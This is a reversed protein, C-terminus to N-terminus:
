HLYPCQIHSCLPLPHEPQGRHLLKPKLGDYFIRGGSIPFRRYPDNAIDQGELEEFKQFLIIVVYSPDSPPTAMSEVALIHKVEGAEWKHPVNGVIINSNRPSVQSTSFTMGFRELSRCCRINSPNYIPSQDSDRVIKSVWTRVAQLVTSSLSLKPDFVVKEGDISAFDLRLTGTGGSENFVSRFKHGLTELKEPLHSKNLLVKFAQSQCYNGFLTQEMEGLFATVYLWFQLQAKAFPNPEGQKM